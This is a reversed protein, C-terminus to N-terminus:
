KTTLWFFLIYGILSIKLSIWVSNNAKDIFNNYNYIYKKLSVQQLLVLIIIKLNLFTNKYWKFNVM